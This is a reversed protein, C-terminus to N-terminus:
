MQNKKIELFVSVQAMKSTKFKDLCKRNTYKSAQM